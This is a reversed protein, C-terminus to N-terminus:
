REPDYDPSNPDVLSIPPPTPKTLREVMDLKQAYAARVKNGEEVAAFYEDPM